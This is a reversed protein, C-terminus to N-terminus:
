PCNRPPCGRAQTLEVRSIDPRELGRRETTQYAHSCLALFVRVQIRLEVLSVDPKADLCQREKRSSSVPTEDAMAPTKLKQKTAKVVPLRDRERRTAHATFDRLPQCHRMELLDVANSHLAVREKAGERLLLFRRFCSRAM